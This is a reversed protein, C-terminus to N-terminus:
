IITKAWPLTQKCINVGLSFTTVLIINAGLAGPGRTMFSHILSISIFIVLM